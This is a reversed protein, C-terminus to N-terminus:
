DIILFADVDVRPHGPTGLVRVVIEHTGIKSFTKTFKVLRTTPDAHDPDSSLPVAYLDVTSILEGDIYAKASGRTTGVPAVWAVARGRFTMRAISGATTSAKLSGGTADNHGVHKWFRSYRIRSSNDGVASLHLVPTEKWISGNGDADVSRVRFQWTHGKTIEARRTLNGASVNRGIWVWGQGDMRRQISYHDIGSEADSGALTILVHAADPGYIPQTTLQGYQAEVRFRVIPAEVTPTTVDHPPRLLYVKLTAVEVDTSDFTLKSDPGVTVDIPDTGDSATVAGFRMRHPYVTPTVEISTRAMQDWHYRLDYTCEHTADNCELDQMLSAEAITFDGHKQDVVHYDFVATGGYGVLTNGAGQHGNVDNQPLVIPLCTAAVEPTIDAPDQIAEPCVLTHIRVDTVPYHHALLGYAASDPAAHEATDVFVAYRHPDGLVATIVGDNAPVCGAAHGAGDVSSTLTLVDPWDHDLFDRIVIGTPPDGALDPLTVDIEYCVQDLDGDLDIVATGGASNLDYPVFTTQLTDDGPVIPEALVAAPAGLSTLVLAAAILFSARRSRTSGHMHDSM